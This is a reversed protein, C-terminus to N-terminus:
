LASLISGLREIDLASPLAKGSLIEKWGKIADDLSEITYPPCKMYIYEAKPLIRIYRPDKFHISSDGYWQIIKKIVLDFIKRLEDITLTPLPKKPYGEPPINKIFAPNDLKDSVQGFITLIGGLNNIQVECIGYIADKDKLEKKWEEIEEYLSGFSYSPCKRLYGSDEVTFDLDERDIVHYYDEAAFSIETIGQQNFYRIVTQFIEIFEKPTLYM